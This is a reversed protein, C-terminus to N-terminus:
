CLSRVMYKAIRHDVAIPFGDQLYLIKGKEDIHSLEKRNVIYFKNVQIFQPHTLLSLLDKLTSHRIMWRKDQGFQILAKVYHDASKVFLIEEPQVWIFCEKKEAFRILKITTNEAKFTGMKTTAEYKSGGPCVLSKNEFLHLAQEM